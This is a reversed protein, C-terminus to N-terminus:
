SSGSSIRPPVKVVGCGGWGGGVLWVFVGFATGNNVQITHSFSDYNPRQRLEVNWDPFRLLTVFRTNLVALHDFTPNLCHIKPPSEVQVSNVALRSQVPIIPLLGVLM